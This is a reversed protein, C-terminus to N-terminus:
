KKCHYNHKHIKLHTKNKPTRFNLRRKFQDNGFKVASSVKNKIIKKRNVIRSM